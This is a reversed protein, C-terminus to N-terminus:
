SLWSLLRVSLPLTMHLARFSTHMNRDSVPSSRQREVGCTSLGTPMFCIEGSKDKDADPGGDMEENVVVNSIGEESGNVLGALRSKDCDSIGDESGDNMGDDIGDDIGDDSGDENGDNSCVSRKKFAPTVVSNRESGLVHLMSILVWHVTSSSSESQAVTEAGAVWHM